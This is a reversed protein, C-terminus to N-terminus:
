HCHYQYARWSSTKSISFNCQNLYCFLKKTGAGGSSPAGGCDEYGTNAYKFSAQRLVFAQGSHQWTAALLALTTLHQYACESCERVPATIACAGWWLIAAGRQILLSPLLSWSSLGWTLWPRIWHQQKTVTQMGLQMPFRESLLIVEVQCSNCSLCAGPKKKSVLYVFLGEKATPM